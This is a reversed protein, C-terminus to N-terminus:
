PTNSIPPGEDPHEGPKERTETPKDGSKRPTDTEDRKKPSPAPAPSGLEARLKRELRNLMQLEVYEPRDEIAIVFRIARRGDQEVDIVELSGRFVKKEERLEFLVYGADGDKEILKLGEDVRLFRVAASFSEAHPYALTKQSRAYVPTAVCLVLAFLLRRM